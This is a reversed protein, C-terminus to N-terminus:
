GNSKFLFKEVAAATNGDLQTSIIEKTRQKIFERKEDDTADTFDIIEEDDTDQEIDQDYEEEVEPQNYNSSKSSSEQTFSSLSNNQKQTDVSSDNDAQKKRNKFLEFLLGM